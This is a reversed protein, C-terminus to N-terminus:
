RERLYYAMSPSDTLASCWSANKHQASIDSNLMARKVRRAYGVTGARCRQAIVVTDRAVQAYELIEGIKLMELTKLAADISDMIISIHPTSFKNHINIITCSGMGHMIRHFVMSTRSAIHTLDFAVGLNKCVLQEKRSECAQNTPQNTNM